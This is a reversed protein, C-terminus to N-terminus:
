SIENYEKKFKHTLINRGKETLRYKQLRSTPKDPIIYEIQDDELLNQLTRKFAGTKSKLGLKIVLESSSAEGESSLVTLVDISQARLQARSQAGPNEGFEPVSIIM